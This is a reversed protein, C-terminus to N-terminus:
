EIRRHVIILGQEEPTCDCGDFLIHGDELAGNEDCPAVHQRNVDLLLDEDTQFVGWFDSRLHKKPHKHGCDPYNCCPCRREANM